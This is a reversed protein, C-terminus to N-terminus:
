TEAKMRQLATSLDLDPTGLRGIYRNFRHSLEESYPSDLSAVRRYSDLNEYLIHVIKQNDVMLDPVEFAAPLYHYRDEQGRHPRSRLLAELNRQKSEPSAGQDTELADRWQQFEKFSGLPLCRALVVYDTKKRGSVLDCSPTLIIYWHTDERGEADSQLASPGNLLDGTTYDGTPLPVYCRTPHVTEDSGEEPPFGLETALEAGGRELSIGLRRMLLHAVDAQHDQLEDWNTEVFQIMFDRTISEVRHTLARHLLPFGSDFVMSVADRLDQVPDEAIKSLVQVFPPNALGEVQTPLATYFVIPTFRRSRIERYIQKGLDSDADPASEEMAQNRVDLILLDFERNELVSMAEVFSQECAIEPAQDAENRAAPAVLEGITESMHADDDVVYIRWPRSIM